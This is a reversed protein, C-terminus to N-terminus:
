DDLCLIYNADIDLFKCLRSLTDIAPLKKCHVYCSIMQQSLGLEKAIAIQTKGSNKIESSLRERIEDILLKKTM